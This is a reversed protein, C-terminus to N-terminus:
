VKKAKKNKKNKKKKQNGENIITAEEDELLIVTNVDQNHITTFRLPQEEQDILMPQMSLTPKEPQRIKGEPSGQKKPKGKPAM